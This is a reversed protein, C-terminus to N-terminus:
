AVAPIPFDSDVLLDRCGRCAPTGSNGATYIALAHQPVLTGVTYIALAHQPVLTGVTYIALAHQPVLTGM